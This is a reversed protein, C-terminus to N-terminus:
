ALVMASAQELLSVKEDLSRQLPLQALGILRRLIEAGTFAQALKHDFGDPAEYAQLLRRRSGPSLHAMEAHAAMVGFDFEPFGMFCFEPDIVRLGGSVRLWSGPYFDGHLLTQGGTSLYREGLEGIRKKLGADQRFPQAADQLGMQVTDLDFGTDNRYPFNFIHEHNLRRLALNDPFGTRSEETLDLRHLRSLFSGLHDAEVDTLNNGPQYLHTFDAGPGLDELMLVFNEADFGLLRPMNKQLFPDQQVVQYFGAEVVARETPAPISPYKEVWPRAQKVIFTHDETVARVVCNMNGEGPKELRLIKEGPALWGKHKLYHELPLPEAPQLQFPSNKMSYSHQQLLLLM